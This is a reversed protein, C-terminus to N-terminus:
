TRPPLDATAFACNAVNGESGGLAGAAAIFFVRRSLADWCESATIEANGVDGGSVRADGRGRGDGLWRSRLTLSELGAGADVNGRMGFVMDGSGDAHDQYAYHATTPRQNEVSAADLTLTRAALDYAITLQGQGDNGAPDIREAADFDLSLKGKGQAEITGPVAHGAIVTEFSSATTAPLPHGAVQYDFSGDALETVVLKYEAVPESGGGPTARKAVWPGWTYVKGEVATVPTEVISHLLELVSGSSGNLTLTINRTYTYYEALQGITRFQGNMPEPLKISLQEATPLAGDLTAPRQDQNLCATAPLALLSALLFPRVLSTGLTRQM